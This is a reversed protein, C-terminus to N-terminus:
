EEKILKIIKIGTWVCTLLLMVIKLIVELDSLSVTAFVGGNVGFIKLWELDEM